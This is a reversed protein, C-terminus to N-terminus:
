QYFDQMSLLRAGAEPVLIECSNLEAAPPPIQLLNRHPPASGGGDQMAHAYIFLSNFIIDRRNLQGEYKVLALCIKM